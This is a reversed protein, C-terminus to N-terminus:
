RCLETMYDLYAKELPDNKWEEWLFQYDQKFTKEFIKDRCNKCIPKIQGVGFSIIDDCSGCISCKM